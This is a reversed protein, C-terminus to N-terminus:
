IRVNFLLVNKVDLLEFTNKTCNLFIDNYTKNM